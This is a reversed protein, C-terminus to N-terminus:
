IEGALFVLESAASFHVIKEFLLFSNLALRSRFRAASKKQGAKGFSKADRGELLLRAKPETGSYRLLVRGGQTQLEKEADAVFKNVGDIQAFPIKERV